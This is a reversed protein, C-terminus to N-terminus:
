LISDRKSRANRLHKKVTHESIYLRAAIQKYSLGQSRLLWVESERETFGYAKAEALVRHPVIQSIDEFTVLFGESLGLPIWRFRLRLSPVLRKPLSISLLM